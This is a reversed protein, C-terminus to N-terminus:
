LFCICYLSFLVPGLISGQPVGYLIDNNKSTCDGVIFECFFNRETIYVNQVLNFVNGSVGICKELRNILVCHDVMDFAASLDLIILVSSYRQRYKLESWKSGKIHEKLIIVKDSVQIINRGFVIKM